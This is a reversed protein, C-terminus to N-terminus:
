WNVHLGRILVDLIFPFLCIRAAESAKVGNHADKYDMCDYTAGVVTLRAGAFVCIM